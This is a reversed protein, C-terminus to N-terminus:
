AGSSVIADNGYDGERWGHFGMCMGDGEFLDLSSIVSSDARSRLQVETKLSVFEIENGLSGTVGDLVMMLGYIADDIAKLAAQRAAPDITPSIQGIAYGRIDKFIIRGAAHQLWLELSRSELPHKALMLDDTPM